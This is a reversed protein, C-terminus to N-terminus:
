NFNNVDDENGYVGDPGPSILLFSDPRYPTVTADTGDDAKKTNEYVTKNLIYNPFTFRNDPDLFDKPEIPWGGSSWTGFEQLGGNASAVTLSIPWTPMNPNSGSNQLGTILGNDAHTYIGIIDDSGAATSEVCGALSASTKSRRYMASNAAYYLIPYDFVDIFLPQHMAANEDTYIQGQSTMADFGLLEIPRKIEVRDQPLYPGVRTISFDEYWHEQEWNVPGQDRIARPVNRRPIYGDLTKGMLYRVLWQAGCINQEDEETPDDSWASSPYGEGSRCEEPNENRFLDLGDGMAKLIARTAGIKAQTRARSLAPVLIGILLAIIAVVTLLEVLTFAKKNQISGWCRETM